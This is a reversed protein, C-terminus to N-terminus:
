KVASGKIKILYIAAAAGAIIVVGEIIAIIFWINISNTQSGTDASDSTASVDASSTKSSTGSISSPKITSSNITSIKSISTVSSVPKESSATVPKVGYMNMSYIRSAYTPLGDPVWLIIKFYKATAPIKTVTYIVDTWKSPYEKINKESEIVIWTKDDTSTYFKMHNPYFTNNVANVISAEIVIKTAGECEYSIWSDDPGGSFKMVANKGQRDASFNVDDIKTFDNYVLNKAYSYMKTFNKMNDTLMLEETAAYSIATLSILLCLTILFTIIKWSKNTKM